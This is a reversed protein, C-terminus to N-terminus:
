ITLYYFILIGSLRKEIQVGTLRVIDGQKLSDELIKGM